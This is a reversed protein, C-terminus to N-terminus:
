VQNRADQDYALSPRPSVHHYNGAMRCDVSLKCEALGGVTHADAAIAEATVLQERNADDNWGNAAASDRHGARIREPLGLGNVQKQGATDALLQTM